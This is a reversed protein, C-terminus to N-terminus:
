LHSKENQKIKKITQSIRIGRFLAYVGFILAMWQRKDGSIIETGLSTFALVAAGATCLTLVLAGSWISVLPSFM